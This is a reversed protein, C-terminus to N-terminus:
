QAQSHFQYVREVEDESGLVVSCRQHLETPTIDLIRQLGNHAQGGAQEVLFSMPNAEYLLRLKGPKSPDRADKPYMFIGGRTLVRHVDAVMSSIWRMNFDKGRPGTAGALLEEIYRQVPKEWHRLNSMNISFEKTAKPIRMHPSTLVFEGGDKDLTFGATGNGLTLILQVQPGYVIYGAAVQKNGAQLFSANTITKDRPNKLISFITGISVNVDINSSGDLPDFLVLYPAQEHGVVPSCHDLEESALGAVIGTPALAHLLIDNAIVDLQKQTEGQVNETGATGLIGALAGRAISHAIRQGTSALVEILEALAEDIRGAGEAHQALRLMHSLSNLSM